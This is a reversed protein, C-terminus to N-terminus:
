LGKKRLWEIARKNSLVNYIEQLATQYPRKARSAQKVIKAFREKLDPHKKSLRAITRLAQQESVQLNTSSVARPKHFDTVGIDKAELGGFRLRMSTPPDNAMAKRAM